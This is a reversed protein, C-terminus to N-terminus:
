LSSAAFIPWVVGTIDVPYNSGNPYQHIADEHIILTLGPTKGAPGYTYTVQKKGGVTAQSSARTAPDIGLAKLFGSVQAAFSPVDFISQNIPLEALNDAPDSLVGTKALTPADLTGVSVVVPRPTKAPGAVQLSGAAVHGAAFVDDMEVMARAAMNAGNSFGALYVRKPDVPLKKTLEAVLTRLFAADDVLTKSQILALKDAPLNALDKADCLPQDAAGLNGDTWKSDLKFEGKDKVGNFNEDGFYCYTFADPFVAIFGQTKAREVWGSIGYYKDGTGGTGHLMVVLPVKQSGDVSTPVYQVYSRKFGGVELSGTAKGTAVASTGASDGGGVPGAGDQGASDQIASDQGAVSDAGAAQGKANDACSSLMAVAALAAALPALLPSRGQRLSNHKNRPLTM